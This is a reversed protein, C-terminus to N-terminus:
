LTYYLRYLAGNIPHKFSWVDPRPKFEVFKKKLDPECIEYVNQGIVIQDPSAVATIKAAISISSGVMDIHSRVADRGYLVVLNEGFDIGVKISIKPLGNDNFAPNLGEAVAKMMSRACNVANNCAKKSDFEGPFCAIVADGVYKVVYGGYGTISMAMEQSFVQVISALVRTPMTLSMATSGEIDTYLIALKVVSNVHRRLFKESIETSIEFQLGRQLTQSVRARTREIITEDAKDTLTM